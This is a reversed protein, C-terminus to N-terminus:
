VTQADHSAMKERARPKPAEDSTATEDSGKDGGAKNDGTQADDDAPKDGAKAVFAPLHKPSCGKTFGDASYRHTILGHEKETSVEIELSHEGKRKPSCYSILYHG